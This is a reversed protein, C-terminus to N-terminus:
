PYDFTVNLDTDLKWPLFSYNPYLQPAIEKVWYNLGNQVNQKSSKRSTFSYLHHYKFDAVKMGDGNMNKRECYSPYFCYGLNKQNSSCLPTIREHPYDSYCNYIDGNNAQCIASAGYITQAKNDVTVHLSYSNLVQGTNYKTIAGFIISRQNKSAHNSFELGNVACNIILGANFSALGSANVAEGVSSNEIRCNDIVGKNHGCLISVADNYSDKFAESRKITLNKIIGDTGVYQFLSSILVNKTKILLNELYHGQGDFTDNFYLETQGLLTNGIPQVKKRESETFLIDNRLCYINKGNVTTRFENLSRDKYKLNNILYSFAIFDEATYIGNKDQNEKIGCTYANGRQCNINTLKTQLTNGYHTKITIDIAIGNVSPVIISYNGTENAPQTITCNSNSDTQITTQFPEIGVIQPNITCSFTRLRANLEQDVHFIIKSFLHSFNLMIEQDPTCTTQAILLDLLQGDSQYLDTAKLPLPPCYATIESEAQANNFTLRDSSKWFKNKLTLLSGNAEINGRAFLSAQSGEALYSTSRSNGNSAYEYVQNGSIIVEDSAPSDFHTPICGICFFSALATIFYKM